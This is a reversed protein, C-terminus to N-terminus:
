GGAKWDNAHYDPTRLRVSGEIKEPSNYGFMYLVGAELDKGFWGFRRAPPTWFHNHRWYTEDAEFHCCVRNAWEPQPAPLTVGHYLCKAPQGYGDPYGKDGGFHRCYCCDLSGKGNPM